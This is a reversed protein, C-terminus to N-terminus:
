TGTSTPQQATIPLCGWDQGASTAVTGSQTTIYEPTAAPMKKQEIREKKVSNMPLEAKSEGLMVERLLEITKIEDMPAQQPQQQIVDKLQRVAEPTRNAPTLEPIAITHHKMRVMDSM